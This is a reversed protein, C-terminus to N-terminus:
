KKVLKAFRIVLEKEEDDMFLLYLFTFLPTFLICYVLMTEASTPISPLLPTPIAKLIAYALLAASLSLLLPKAFSGINIKIDTLYLKSVFLLFLLAQTITSVIATGIAGYLPTLIFSLLISVVFVFFYLYSCEKMKGKSAYANILIGNIFMFPLMFSLIRLVDAAGIFAPPYLLSIVAEANIFCFIASPFLILSSLKISKDFILQQRRKDREAEFQVSYSFLLITSIPMATIVATIIGLSARYIGVDAPSKFYNLFLSDTYTFFTGIIAVISAYVLYSRAKSITRATAHLSPFGFFNLFLAISFLLSLVFALTIGLIMSQLTRSLLFFLALPIAFKLTNLVLSVLFYREYRNAAAFLTNIFPVFTYTLSIISVARIVYAQSADHLFVKAIEGSFIFLFISLALASIFKIKAFYKIYFWAEGSKSFISSGVFKILSTNIGLDSLTSVLISFSLLTMLIGYEYASELLHSFVIGIVLNSIFLPIASAVAYINQKVIKELM